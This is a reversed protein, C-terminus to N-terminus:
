VFCFLKIKIQVESGFKKIKKLLDNHHRNAQVTLLKDPIQYFPFELSGVGSTVVSVLM